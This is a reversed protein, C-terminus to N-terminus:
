INVRSAIFHAFDAMFHVKIKNEKLKANRFNIFEQESWDGPLSNGTTISVNVTKKLEEISSDLSLEVSELIVSLPMYVGSLRFVHVTNLNTPPTITLDDFLFYGLQTSLGRLINDNPTAGLIMEDGLNALYDVLRDLQLSENGITHNFTIFNEISMPSQAGFGAERIKGKSDIGGNKFLENIFYNKNSVIVLEGQADKLESFWEAAANAGSVRKSKGREAKEAADDLSVSYTAGFMAVDPKFNLSGPVQAEYQISNNGGHLQAFAAITAQTLNEEVTSPMKIFSETIELKPPKDTSGSLIYNQMDSIFKELKFLESMNKLFSNNLAVNIVNYLEYYPQIIEGTDTTIKFDRLRNVGRQLIEVILTQPTANLNNKIVAIAEEKLFTYFFKSLDNYKKIDGKDLKKLQELNYKFSAETGLILNMGKILESWDNTNANIFEHDILFKNEAARAIEILVRLAQRARGQKAVTNNYIVLTPTTGVLQKAKSGTKPYFVAFDATYSWERSADVPFFSSNVDAM